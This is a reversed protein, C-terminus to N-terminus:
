EKWEYRREGTRPGIGEDLTVLGVGRRSNRASCTTEFRGSQPATAQERVWIVEYGGITADVLRLTDSWATLWQQQHFAEFPPNWSIFDNGPADEFAIGFQGSVVMEGDRRYEYLGATGDDAEVLLRLTASYGESAPTVVEDTTGEVTQIWTWTGDVEPPWRPEVGNEGCASLAAIVIPALFSRRVIRHLQRM